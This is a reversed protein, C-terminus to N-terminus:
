SCKGNYLDWVDCTTGKKTVCTGQEIEQKGDTITYVGGTIACYVAAETIYGTIKLGNMPCEGRMLAWEECQRNDGFICVGYEGGDGRKTITLTGGNEQCYTSAPNAIGTTSTVNVPSSEVCPEEFERLCKQKAECWSYGATAICGHIDKDGGVLNNAKKTEVYSFIGLGILIAIALLMVGTGKQKFFM